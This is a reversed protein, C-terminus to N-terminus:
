YFIFVTSDIYGYYLLPKNMWLKQVICGNGAQTTVEPPHVAADTRECAFSSQDFSVCYAATGLVALGDVQYM